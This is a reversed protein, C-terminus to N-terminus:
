LTIWIYKPKHLASWMKIVPFSMHLEFYIGNLALIALLLLFLFGSWTIRVSSSVFFAIEMSKPQWAINEICWDKEQREFKLFFVSFLVSVFFLLSYLSLQMKPIKCDESKKMTCYFQILRCDIKRWICPNYKYQIQITNTNSSKQQKNWVQPHLFGGLTRSM